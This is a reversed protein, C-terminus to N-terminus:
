SHYEQRAEEREEDQNPNYEANGTPSSSRNFGHCDTNNLPQMSATAGLELFAAESSLMVTLM